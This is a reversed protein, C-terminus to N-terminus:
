QEGPHDISCSIFPWKQGNVIKYFYLLNIAFVSRRRNKKRGVLEFKISSFSYVVTFFIKGTRSKSITSERNRALVARALLELWARTPQRLPYVRSRKAL